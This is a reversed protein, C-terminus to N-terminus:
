RYRPHLAAASRSVLADPQARALQPLVRLWGDQQGPPINYDRMLSAANDGTVPASLVPGIVIAGGTRDAEPLQLIIFNELFGTTHLYPPATMRAAKGAATAAHSSRRAMDMVELLLGHDGQVAQRCEFAPPLTLQPTDAADLWMVPVRYAEYILKCIYEIGEREEMDEPM